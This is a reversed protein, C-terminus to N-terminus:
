REYFFIPNKLNITEWKDYWHKRKGIVAFSNCKEDNYFEKVRVFRNRYKIMLKSIACGGEKSYNEYTSNFTGKIANGTNVGMSILIEAVGEKILLSDIGNLRMSRTQNHKEASRETRKNVILNFKLMIGGAKITLEQSNM